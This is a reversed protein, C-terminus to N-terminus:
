FNLAIEPATFRQFLTGQGPKEVVAEVRLVHASVPKKDRLFGFQRERGVEDSINSRIENGLNESSVTWNFGGDMTKEKGDTDIFALRVAVNLTILKDGQELADISYARRKRIPSDEDSHQGILQISQDQKKAANFLVGLDCDEELYVFVGDVYSWSSIDNEIGLERVVYHPVAVWGHSPDQYFTLELPAKESSESNQAIM